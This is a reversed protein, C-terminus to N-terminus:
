GSSTAASKKPSAVNTQRIEFPTLLKEPLHREALREGVIHDRRAPFVPGAVARCVHIQIRRRLDYITVATTEGAQVAADFSPPYAIAANLKKDSILNTFDRSAPVFEFAKLARLAALTNTSDEGGLTMVKPTEQRVKGALKVATLGFGTM